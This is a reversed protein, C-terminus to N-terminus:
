SVIIGHSSGYNYESGHLLIENVISTNENLIKM